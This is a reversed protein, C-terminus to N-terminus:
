YRNDFEVDGLETIHEACAKLIQINKEKDEDESIENIKEMVALAFIIEGERNKVPVSVVFNGPKYEGSVFAIGTRRIEEIQEFLKHEDTITNETYQKLGHREILKKIKKDPMGSLLVKGQATAHFPIRTGICPAIQIESKLSPFFNVNM